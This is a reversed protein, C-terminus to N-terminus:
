SCSKSGANLNLTRPCADMSKSSPCAAEDSVALALKQHTGLGLSPDLAENYLEETKKVIHKWDHAEAIKRGKVGM